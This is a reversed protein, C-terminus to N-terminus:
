RTQAVMRAAVLDAHANGVSKFLTIDAASRRGEAEGRCLAYLDGLVHSEPVIGARIPMLVDGAEQMANTLTDVYVRARRVAEDDCERENPSHSGMLDLHAGPELWAGRVIPTAASTACSVIDATRVTAELDDSVSVALNRGPGEPQKPWAQGIERAVAEAKAGSRGWVVIETIPRVAAHALANHPAQDGTGVILLRSADPRSLLKSALAAVAATRRRTLETGDVMATPVGTKGDFLLVQAHITPLGREPNQPFLTFLKVGLAEGPQWAPMLALVADPGSPQEIFHLQRKPVVAGAIFAERLREVLASYPLAGAVERSSLIQM